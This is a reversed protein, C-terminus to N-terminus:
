LRKLDELRPCGPENFSSNASTTRRLLEDFDLYPEYHDVAVSVRNKDDINLKPTFSHIAQTAEHTSVGVSLIPAGQVGDMMSKVEPSLNYKQKRGCILLAAEFPREDTQRLRQYEGLFGVILDDRTVHCVYLTRSPKERLNELFRTLSTTVVNIDKTSYHRFRHEKGSVLTTQFLRELDALAPCGLFPRDPICGLLPIGWTQKMAKAIYDKTQEYKDPIVKNIVVGAIRVNYHQCLIRNLELEDFAKGLGGNAILIMDAGLLSAVKANNLGVISGVACHGTGEILVVDSNQNQHEMAVEVDKLQEELTIHGDVFRKTYGSPIIVPSMDRYDVHSLGFHERMLVVDKDVRLNENAKDVVPVHQQGVPKIFGVKNFRKQLGSMVALSVTTKGVHQKTAAVFIPRQSRGTEPDVKWFRSPDHNRTSM